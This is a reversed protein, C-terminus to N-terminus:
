KYRNCRVISDNFLTTGKGKKKMLLVIVVVVTVALVVMILVVIVGAVVGGIVGPAGAGDTTSNSTPKTSGPGTITFLCDIM